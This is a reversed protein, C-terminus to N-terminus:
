SDTQLLFYALKKWEQVRVCGHSLSRQTNGFLYRQNTDHMYVSFPNNFNFKLIGLANEDGSGQIVKYPITEKFKKWPVTRPDIEDGKRNLLLYGHKDLYDPDKKLGPLIEKKIISVPINWQPYTVMNSIRSTLQPTPTEQKGVVTRSKFVLTDQAWVELYFSPINVWIFLEPFSDPLQKCRDLNLALTKVKEWPTSNLRNITALNIVGTEKLKEAKQYQRILRKLHLTDPVPQLTDLLGEEYFRHQIARYMSDRVKAPFSIFTYSRFTKVSDLLHELANKLSDYQKQRPELSEFIKQPSPTGSLSDMITRALSLSFVSDSNQSTSDRPLRGLKLHRAMRICSESLVLDALSWRLADLKYKESTQIQQWLTEFTRTPYHAPLLGYYLLRDFFIRLSDLQPKWQGKESWYPRFGREAYLTYLLSDSHFEISDQIPNRGQLVNA